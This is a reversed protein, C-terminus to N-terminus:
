RWFTSRKNLFSLLSGLAVAVGAHLILLPLEPVVTTGTIRVANGDSPEVRIWSHTSNQNYQKFDLPDGAAGTVSYPGGLLPAPIIALMPTSTDLKLTLSKTGQEFSYEQVISATVVHVVYDRDEWEVVLDNTEVSKIAYRLVTVGPPMTVVNDVIDIPIDNVYVIDSLSPLVITSEISGSNYSVERVDSGANSVISASYTLTVNAAGLTDIAVSSGAHSFSLIINNEDVALINSINSAITNVTIRSVTRSPTIEETVRALGDSSIEIILSNRTVQAFSQPLQLLAFFLTASIALCTISNKLLPRYSRAAQENDRNYCKEQEAHAQGLCALRASLM